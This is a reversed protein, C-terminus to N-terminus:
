ISYKLKLFNRLDKGLTQAIEQWTIFGCKQRLHDKRISKIVELFAQMLDPRRYDFLLVFNKETKYAAFINRLLQYHKVSDGVTLLSLDFISEMEPYVKLVTSLKKTTFDSETLKAEYITDGLLMDVETPSNHTEIEPDWGFEPDGNAFSLNVRPGKWTSFSPHCFINMLLADSSNSSAMELTGNNFHTHKKNLRRSWDDNNLIQKLSEDHFNPNEAIGLPNKFIIASKYNEYGAKAINREKIYNTTSTIISTKLESSFNM